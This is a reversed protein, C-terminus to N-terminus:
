NDDIVFGYNKLLQKRINRPIEEKNKVKVKRKTIKKNEVSVLDQVRRLKLVEFSGESKKAMCYVM